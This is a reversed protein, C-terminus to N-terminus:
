SDGDCRRARVEKFRRVRSPRKSHSEGPTRDAVRSLACILATEPGDNRLACIPLGALFLTAGRDFRWRDTIGRLEIQGREVVVLANRWESAQYAREGGPAIVFIRAEVWAPLRAGFFSVPQGRSAIM